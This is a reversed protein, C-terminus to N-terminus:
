ESPVQSGAVSGNLLMPPWYSSSRLVTTKCTAGSSADARGEENPFALIINRIWSATAVKLKGKASLTLLLLM